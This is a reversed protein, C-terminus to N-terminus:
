QVAELMEKAHAMTHKTVTQGGLMRAMEDIRAQEKLYTIDTTTKNAQSHKEVHLHHEGYAAVQPLHTICLIQTNQALRRLLQGVVDAISGGIVVDVEDFILCPVTTSKACSVYIALALRSLEGGSAVKALAGKPQGLNCQVLFQVHDMGHPSPKKEEQATLEITFEGGKMGLEPMLKSVDSSLRKLAHRRSTTLKNAKEYYTKELETQQQIALALASDISALEKVQQSLHQHLATLEIPKIKHKRAMDFIKNLRDEVERLRQENNEFHDGMQNLEHAAEELPVVADNLLQTLNKMEDHTSVLPAINHIVSSLQTLIAHDDDRIKNLAQHIESELQDANALKKHELDLETVENEGLALQDLEHLQYSLLEDKAEKQGMKDELSKIHDAANQWALYAGQTAQLLKSHDAFEDLLDRQQPAKLLQQHQHQGHLSVLFGTLEKLLQLPCPRGNILCRSAGQKSLIRTVFCEDDVEFDHTKLWNKVLTSSQIDFILSLEARECGPRIMQLDARAGLGLHIADLMISKGAGTEGTVTTLGKILDIEAEEILTFNKIHISKLM